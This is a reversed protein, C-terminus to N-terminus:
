LLINKGTLKKVADLLANHEAEAFARSSAAAKKAYKLNLNGPTGTSTRKKLAAM